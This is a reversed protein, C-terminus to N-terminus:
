GDRWFRSRLVAIDATAANRVARERYERLFGPDLVMRALIGPIDGPTAFPILQSAMEEPFPYSAPLLAPKAHAWALFPVGTEKSTGFVEIQRDVTTYPLDFVTLLIDARDIEGDFTERSPLHEFFEIDYGGAIMEGCRSLIRRGYDGDPPGLLVLTITDKLNGGRFVDLIADYDRHRSVYGPVTVRLRGETRGRDRPTFGEPPFEFPIDIVNQRVERGVLYRRVNGSMVIVNPMKRVVLSRLLSSACEGPAPFYRPFFWSNCNYVTLHFGPGTKLLAFRFLEPFSYPEDLVVIDARAIASRVFPTFPHKGAIPVIEDVNGQSEICERLAPIQRPHVALTVRDDRFIRLLVNMYLHHNSVNSVLVVNGSANARHGPSATDAPGAPKPLQTPSISV